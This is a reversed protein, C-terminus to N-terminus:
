GKRYCRTSPKDHSDRDFCIFFHLHNVAFQIAYYWAPYSIIRGCLCCRVALPSLGTLAEPQSLLLKFLKVKHPRLSLMGSGMHAIHQLNLRNGLVINISKNEESAAGEMGISALIDRKTSDDIV